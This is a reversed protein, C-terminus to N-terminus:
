PIFTYCTSTPRFFTRPPILRVMADVYIHWVQQGPVICLKKLDLAHSEFVARELTRAM